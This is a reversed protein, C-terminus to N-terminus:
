SRNNDNGRVPRAAQNRNQRQIQLKCCCKERRFQVLIKIKRLKTNSLPIGEHVETARTSVRCHYIDQRSRRTKKSFYEIHDRIPLTDYYRHLKWPTPGRPRFDLSSSALTLSQKVRKLKSRQDDSVGRHAPHRISAVEKPKPEVQTGTDCGRNLPAEGEHQSM